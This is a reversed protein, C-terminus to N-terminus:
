NYSVNFSVEVTLVGAAVKAYIAQSAPENEFVLTVVVDIASGEVEIQDTDPYTIVIRFMDGYLNADGGSGAAWLYDVTAVTTKVSVISAVLTGEASATNASDEDWAVAFTMVAEDFAPNVTTPVLDSTLAVPPTVRVTTTGGEGITVTGVQNSSQTISGAWFAYTFGSTLMALMILLGIVLGRKKM